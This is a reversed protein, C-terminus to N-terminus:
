TSVAQTFFIGSYMWQMFTAALNQTVTTTMLYAQSTMGEYPSVPLLTSHLIQRFPIHKAAVTHLYAFSTKHLTGKRDKM